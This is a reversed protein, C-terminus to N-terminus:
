TTAMIQTVRAEALVSDTYHRDPIQTVQPQVQALLIVQTVGQAVVVVALSKVQHTLVAGAM